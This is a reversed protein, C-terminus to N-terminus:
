LGNYVDWTANINNLTRTQPHAKVDNGKLNYCMYASNNSLDAESAREQVFWYNGAAAFDLFDQWVGFTFDNKMNALSLSGKLPVVKSLTSIPAAISNVTTRQKVGRRYPARSYGANEGSNPVEFSMGAACYTVLPNGIRSEFKVRLDTFSRAEFTLVIPRNRNFEVSAVLNASSEPGDFVRIFANTTDPSALEIGACAFYNITGTSGFSVQMSNPSSAEYTTSFDDNTLNQPLDTGAGVVVSPTVGKLVNTYTIIM